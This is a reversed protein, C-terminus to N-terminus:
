MLYYWGKGWRSRLILHHSLVVWSSPFLLHRQSSIQAPRIVTPVVHEGKRVPGLSGVSLCGGRALAAAGVWGGGCGCTDAWGEDRSVFHTGRLGVSPISAVLCASESQSSDTFLAAIPNRRHSECTNEQCHAHPSMQWTLHCRESNRSFFELWRKLLRKVYDKISREQVKGKFNMKRIRNENDHNTYGSVAKGDALLKAVWLKGCRKAVHIRIIYATFQEVTQLGQDTM